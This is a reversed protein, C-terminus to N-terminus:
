ASKINQFERTQAHVKHTSFTSVKTLQPNCAINKNM